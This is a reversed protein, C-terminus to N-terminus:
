NKYVVKKALTYNFGMAVLSGVALPILPQSSTMPFYYIVWFFTGINVGAGIVQVTLYYGYQQVVTPKFVGSQNFTWTRNLYWTVSVACAFSGMRAPFLAWHIELLWLLTLSDVLFGVAGVMAFKTFQWNLITNLM